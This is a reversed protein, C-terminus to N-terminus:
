SYVTQEATYFKNKATKKIYVLLLIFQALTIGIVMSDFDMFGKEVVEKQDGSLLFSVLFNNVFHVGSIFALSKRELVVISALVGFLTILFVAELGYEVHLIGFIASGLFILVYYNKIRLSFSQLLYGRFIVEEAYSQIAVTVISVPVLYVLTTDIRNELFYKWDDQQNILSGLIVLTGWVLIGELVENRSFFDVFNLTSFNRKHIIRIAFYIGTLVLFFAFGEQFGNIIAEFISGKLATQDIFFPDDADIIIYSLFLLGILVTNFILFRWWENKGKEAQALFQNDSIFGM